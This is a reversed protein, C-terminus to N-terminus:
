SLIALSEKSSLFLRIQETPAWFDAFQIVQFEFLLLFAASGDRIKSNVFLKAFLTIDCRICNEFRLETFLYM